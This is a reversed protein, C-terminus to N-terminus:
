LFVEVDTPDVKTRYLTCADWMGDRKIIGASYRPIYGIPKFGLAELIEMNLEALMASNDIVQCADLYEILLREPIQKM